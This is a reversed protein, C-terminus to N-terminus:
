SNAGSRKQGCGRLTLDEYLEVGPSEASTQHASANANPLIKECVFNGDKTWGVTAKDLCLLPIAVRHVEFPDAM